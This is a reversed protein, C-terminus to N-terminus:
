NPTSPFPVFFLQRTRASKEEQPQEPRQTNPSLQTPQRPGLLNSNATDHPTPFDKCAFVEGWAIASPNEQPIM